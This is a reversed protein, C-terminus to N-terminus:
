RKRDFVPSLLWRLATRARSGASGSRRAREELDGFACDLMERPFVEGFSLMPSIPGERAQQRAKKPLARAAAGHRLAAEHRNRPRIVRELKHAEIIARATKGVCEDRALSRRQQCQAACPQLDALAPRLAKPQLCQRVLGGCAARRLM